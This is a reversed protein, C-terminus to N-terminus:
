ELLGLVEVCNRTLGIEEEAERLATHLITADGRDMTGGPFSVQGKHHEVEETRQTFVVSLTM